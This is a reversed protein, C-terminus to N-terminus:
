PVLRVKKDACVVRRGEWKCGPNDEHWKNLEDSVSSLDFVEKVGSPLRRCLDELEYELKRRQLSLDDVVLKSRFLM